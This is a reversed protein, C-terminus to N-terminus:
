LKCLDQICSLGYYFFRAGITKNTNAGEFILSGRGMSHSDPIPGGKVLDPDYIGIKYFLIGFFLM